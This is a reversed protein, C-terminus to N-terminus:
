HSGGEVQQGNSMQEDSLVALGNIPCIHKISNGIMKKSLLCRSDLVFFRLSSQLFSTNSYREFGQQCEM